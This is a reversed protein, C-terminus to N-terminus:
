IFTMKQGSYCMSFFPLLKEDPLDDIFASKGTATNTIQLTHTDCDLDFRLTTGNGWPDIHGRATGKSYRGGSSSYWCYASNYSGGQAMAEPTIVGMMRGDTGSYDDSECVVMWQHKGTQMAPKGAVARWPGNGPHSATQQGNSLTIGPQCHDPDFTVKKGCTITLTNAIKAGNVFVEFAYDGDVRPTVTVCYSGDGNDSVGSPLDARADGPCKSCRATIRDGGRRLLKGRLDCTQVVFTVSENRDCRREKDGKVSSHAASADCTVVFGLMDDSKRTRAEDTVAEFDLYSHSPPTDGIEASVLSRVRAGLALWAPLGADESTTKEKVLLQSGFEVARKADECLKKVRDHDGDLVKHRACEIDEVEQLKQLVRTEIAEVAKKGALEIENRVDKARACLKEGIEDVAKLYALARPLFEKEVEEVKGLVEKKKEEAMDKALVIPQHGKHNGVLACHGCVVIDCSVCFLSLPQGEHVSCMEDKYAIGTTQRDGSKGDPESLTSVIAHQGPSTTIHQLTHAKCYAAKCSGCWCAAENSCPSDDIWACTTKKSTRRTVDKALGQVGSSPLCTEARCLPCRIEGQKDASLVLQEICSICFSHLCDLLRYDHKDQHCVACYTSSDMLDASCSAM